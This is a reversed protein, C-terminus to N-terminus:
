NIKIEISFKFDVLRYSGPIISELPVTSSQVLEYLVSSFRVAVSPDELGVLSIVPTTLLNRAFIHTCFSQQKTKINRYIGTPTVLLLGDPSFSPRRFFCPVTSDAFLNKSKQHIITPDFDTASLPGPAVSKTTELMKAVVHGRFALKLM